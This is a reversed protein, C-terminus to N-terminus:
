CRRCWDHQLYSSKTLVEGNTGEREISPIVEHVGNGMQGVGLNEGDSLRGDLVDSLVACPFDGDFIRDYQSSHPVQTGADLEKAATVFDHSLSRVTDDMRGDDFRRGEHLLISERRLRVAFEPDIERDMFM